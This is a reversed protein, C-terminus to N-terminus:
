GQVAEDAAGPWTAATIVAGPTPKFVGLRERPSSLEM